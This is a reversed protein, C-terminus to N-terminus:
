KEYKERGRKSGERERERSINKIHKKDDDSTQPATGHSGPTSEARGARTRKRTTQLRTQQKDSKDRTHDLALLAGQESPRSTDGHLM